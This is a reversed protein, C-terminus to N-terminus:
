WCAPWDSQNYYGSADFGPDGPHYESLYKCIKAPTDCPIPTCNNGAPLPPIDFKDTIMWTNPPWTVPDYFKPEPAVETTKLIAVKYHSGTNAPNSKYVFGPLDPGPNDPATLPDLPLASMFTPVLGPIYGNIGTGYAGYPCTTSHMAGGCLAGGNPAPYRGNKAYYLALATQLQVLQSKRWTIRAREKAKVLSALVVSALLAIIAIVVILEILTFGRSTKRQPFM